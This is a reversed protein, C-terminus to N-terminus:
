KLSTQPPTHICVMCPITPVLYVDGDYKDDDDDYKYEDDDNIFYDYEYEYEEDKNDDDDDYNSLKSLSM